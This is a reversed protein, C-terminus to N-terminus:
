ARGSGRGRLCKTQVLLRTEMIVGAAPNAQILRAIWMVPSGYLTMFAAARSKAVPITTWQAPIPAFAAAIYAEVASPWPSAGPSLLSPCTVAQGLRRLGVILFRTMDTELSRQRRHCRELLCHPHRMRVLPSHQAFDHETSDRAMAYSIPRETCREARSSAWVSCRRPRRTMLLDGALRNPPVPRACSQKEPTPGATHGSAFQAERLWQVSSLAISPARGL